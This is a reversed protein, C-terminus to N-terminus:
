NRLQNIQLGLCVHETLPHSSSAITKRLHVWKQLLKHQKRQNLTPFAGKTIRLGNIDKCTPAPNSVPSAESMTHSHSQTSLKAIIISARCVPLNLADTSHKSCLDCEPHIQPLWSPGPPMLEPSNIM